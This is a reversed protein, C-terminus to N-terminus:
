REGRFRRSATEALLCAAILLLPILPLGNRRARVGSEVANSPAGLATVLSALPAADGSASPVSSREPAVSGAATSWWRRHASLGSNGGLMRWRWSEDYGVALVRGLGARRAALAPGAAQRELTIADLRVATLARLPLDRPTVSDEALLIRGPLRDGARAPALARLPELALASGDVILGGGTVVYRAIAPALDAASSDLMVVADYRATDIPLINDDRVAVGPATPISARVLWGAESLAAMVFKSEWDARGLVLVARNPQGTPAVARAAFTGREVRVAGVISAVDLTAGAKARITDLVGASDAVSMPVSGAGVVLLRARDDPERVRVAEIAFAPPSGNWRVTLGVKRLAILLDREARSPMADIGVDLAAVTPDSVVADLDRALASTSTSRSTSLAAVPRMSRWLAIALTAL